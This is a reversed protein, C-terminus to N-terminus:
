VFNFIQRYREEVQKRTEDHKQFYANTQVQQEIVWKKTRDAHDDELEFFADHVKVGFYQFSTDQINQNIKLKVEM